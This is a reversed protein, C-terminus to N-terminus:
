ASRSLHVGDSGHDLGRSRGGSEEAAAPSGRRAVDHEEGPRAAATLRAGALLEDGGNSRAAPLGGADDARRAELVPALDADVHDLDGAARAPRQRRAGVRAAATLLALSGLEQEAGPAEVPAGEGPGGLPESRGRMGAIQQDHVLDARELEELALPERRRQLLDRAARVAQHDHDHPRLQHLDRPPAPGQRAHDRRLRESRERGGRRRRGCVTLSRAAPSPARRRM